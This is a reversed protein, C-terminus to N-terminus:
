DLEDAKMTRRAGEDAIHAQRAQESRYVVIAVGDCELMPLSRTLGDVQDCHLYLAVNRWRPQSMGLSGHQRWRRIFEDHSYRPHRHAVYILKPRDEAIVVNAMSSPPSPSTRPAPVCGGRTSSPGPASSRVVW